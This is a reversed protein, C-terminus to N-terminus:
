LADSTDQLQMSTPFRPIIAASSAPHAPHARVVLGCQYAYASTLSACAILMTKVGRNRKTEKRDRREQKGKENWKM